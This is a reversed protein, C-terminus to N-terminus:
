ASMGLLPAYSLRAWPSLDALRITIPARGESRLQKDDHEREACYDREVHTRRRTEYTVRTM